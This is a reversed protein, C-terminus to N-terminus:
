RKALTPIQALAFVLDEQALRALGAGLRILDKNEKPTLRWSLVAPQAQITELALVHGPTCLTDGTSVDKLGAIAVIDGAVAQEVERTKEAIM